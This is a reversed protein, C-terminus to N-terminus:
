PEVETAIKNSAAVAHCASLVAALACWTNRTMTFPRGSSTEAILWAFAFEGRRGLPRPPRNARQPENGGWIFPSTVPLSASSASWSRELQDVGRRALFYTADILSWVPYSAAIPAVIVVRGLSIATIILLISFTECLGTALFPGIAPSELGSATITALGRSLHSLRGAIGGGHLASFFLPENAM